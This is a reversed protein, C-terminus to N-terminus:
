PNRWPDDLPCITVRPHNAHPTPDLADTALVRDVPSDPALLAGDHATAELHTVCLWVEAAGLERLRTAVALFTGGRSCLDDVIIARTGPALPTAPAPVVLGTIRGTAFDRTKEGVLTPADPALEALRTGYRAAAGADPYVLTVPTGAPVAALARRALDLSPYDARSRELLELSVASHPEVVVVEDVRLDNVFATLHRLTFVTSPADVRDLRSYPLYTVRLTLTTAGHERLHHVLAWLTFLDRDDDWRLTVRHPGPTVAVDRLVVEGNPYRGEAVPVGDILVM